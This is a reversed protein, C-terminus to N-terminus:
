LNVFWDFYVLKAVHTQKSVGIFCQVSAKGSYKSSVDFALAQYFILGWQHFIQGLKFILSMVGVHHYDCNKLLGVIEIIPVKLLRQRQWEEFIGYAWQNKYHTSKRVGNQVM